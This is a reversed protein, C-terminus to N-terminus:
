AVPNELGQKMKDAEWMHSMMDVVRCSYGWENDYWALLKVLTPSTAVAAASDFILSSPDGIFDSSVVPDDTYRVLGEFEEEAALKVAAKIEDISTPRKLVCTLDLLSVDAVPVRLAFGTLKGNLSPIIRGLSSAAGSSTPIINTLGSRGRRWDKPNASDVTPQSITLAHVTTMLGESLGFNDDIIKALPALCNTTCSACSVVQPHDHEMTYLDHNVGFVYMPTETDKSPATMIVREAGGIKIHKELCLPTTLFKGSAEVVYDCGSAGWPVEGPDTKQTVHVPEGDILFCDDRDLSTSVEGEFRGMVTDHTLLFSAYKAGLVPDNIAVVTIGANRSARCVLRGIRGFGNIGIRLPRGELDEQSADM